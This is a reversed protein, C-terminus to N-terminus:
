RGRHARFASPGEGYRAKFATSFSASTAYGCSSAITAIPLETTALLRRAAALRIRTLYVFPTFGTAARFLRAFHFKSVHAEAALEDLSLPESYRVSMLDLVRALRVDRITGPSREDDRPLSAHQTTLHVALWSAVTGAYLDDYGQALGRLLALTVNFIAPDRDVSELPGSVASQGVRRYHEATADMLGRPLYLMATSSTVGDVPVFRLRRSERSDLLCVAGAHYLGRRWQGRYLVETAYRGSTAVGIEQDMTAISAYPEDSVSGIHHDVLLSTWGLERSSSRVASPIVSACTLSAETLM